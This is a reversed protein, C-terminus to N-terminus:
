LDLISRGNYFARAAEQIAQQTRGPFRRPTATYITHNRKGLFLRCLWSFGLDTMVKALRRSQPVDQGDAELRDQMETIDFFERCLYSTPNALFDEVTRLEDSKGAEMVYRKEASPPARRNPDFEPHLPYEKLWGRCAGAEVLIPFLNDFYHPNAAAFADVDEQTQRPSSTLFYRTDGAMLPLADRHNTLLLYNATNVIDTNKKYKGQVGLYPNSIPAKLADLHNWRDSGHLKIEEIGIFIHGAQWDTFNGQITKPEVISGNEEGLVRMMLSILFSKGDGERSQMVVAWNSRKNTQVIYAFWSIVIAREREDPILHAFHAALITQCERQRPTLKGPIAPQSLPNFTNLYTVGKHTFFEEHSPLYMRKDAQPVCFVNLAADSATNAPRSIKEARESKTLMNRNFMNDFAQKTLTMNTRRNVFMDEDGVYLWDAAWAPTIEATPDQYRLRSRAQAVPLTHQMILKYQTQLVPVLDSRALHGIDITKIRQSAANLMEQTAAACLEAKADAALNVKLAAKAENYRNILWRLTKPRGTKGTHDASKWAKDFSAESFKEPCTRSWNEAIQRAEASGDYEHFISMLAFVWDDHSLDASIIELMAETEALSVGCKLGAEPFIDDPDVEGTAANGPLEPREMFWAPMDPIDFANLFPEKGLVWSYNRGSSHLSPPLVIYGNYKLDIGPCNQLKGPPHLGRPACYIFHKGGSGSLAVVPTDLPGHEAELRAMDAPGNHHMDQDVAIKKSRELFLGIGAAPYVTWWKILQVRNTAANLHGGKGLCPHPAKLDGSTCIPFVKWSLAAYALAWELMTEM